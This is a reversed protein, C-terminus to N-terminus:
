RKWDRSVVHMGQNAAELEMKLILLMVDEFDRERVEAETM